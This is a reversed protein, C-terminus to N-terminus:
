PTMVAKVIEADTAPLAMKRLVKEGSTVVLAPLGQARAAEIAARMHAPITGLGTVVDADVVRCEYGKVELAFRANHVQLPVPMQSSEYVISVLSKTDIIPDPDVIPDDSVTIIAQSFATSGDSTTAAITILTTRQPLIVASGNNEVDKPGDGDNRTVTAEPPSTTWEVHVPGLTKADLRNPSVTVKATPLVVPLPSPPPGVSWTRIRKTLTPKTDTGGTSYALEVVRIIGTKSTASCVFIRGGDYIRFDLDTPDVVLFDVTAAPPADSIVEILSGSKAVIPREAIIPAPGSNPSQSLVPHAIAAALIALTAILANLRTM